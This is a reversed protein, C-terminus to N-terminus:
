VMRGSDLRLMDKCFSLSQWLPYFFGSPSDEIGLHLTGVLRSQFLM